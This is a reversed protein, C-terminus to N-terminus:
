LAVAEVWILLGQLCDIDPESGSDVAADFAIEAAEAVWEREWDRAWGVTWRGHGQDVLVATANPDIASLAQYVARASETTLEYSLL